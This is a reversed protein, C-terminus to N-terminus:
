DSKRIRQRINTRNDNNLLGEPFKDHVQPITLNIHLPSDIYLRMM